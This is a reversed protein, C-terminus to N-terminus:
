FIEPCEEDYTEKYRAKFEEPTFEHTAPADQEVVYVATINAIKAMHEYDLGKVYGTIFGSRFADGAGTPDAARLPKASKVTVEGEKTIISCGEAGMTKVITKTLDLLEEITKGTRHLIVSLEYDNVITFLSGEISSLMDEKTLRPLQQGPDYIFPIGLERCEKCYKIMADPANPSIIAIQIDKYDIDKFSVLSGKSMAGSYFGTIQNSNRDTTIFCNATYEDEIIKILSTDVGRKRLWEDFEGFDRGATAMISPKQGLLAISYSINSACGGRMKKMDEVLFSVNLKSLHEPLIHEEFVGPFQLIHDFALSGTIIISM